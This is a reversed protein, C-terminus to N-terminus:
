GSWSPWGERLTARIRAAAEVLNRLAPEVEEYTRTKLGCDPNVWLQGPDLADLAQGLLAAMDDTAPVRPSHIDYVGPGIGAAYGNRELDHALEMRSRAAEVSTVDADLEAIWPLIEGFESYCMHTHVQTTDAVGATALRFSEVAWALYGTWRERRLPLGERLAPEDVQIVGLGARELDAVEDRLALAVQRATEAEPQDDRVFSWKLMTVPGTLMAKMPRDTLSQAYASWAVTMPAPRAVDGYMIPPRVYRSGYSQVWGHGTFAFGDLQEGFYQVMDNREPEGHVLVDLGLAEQLRVVREIEARMRAEYGARDLRGARHDARAARLEPTQPFSGITTTPLLPLGLREAQLKAREAYPTARRADAETLAAVRERVAPDVTRPSTRRAQVAAVNAALEAEVAGTGERLARTLLVVEDVKQRAFALWGRVEPDLGTEAALDVPVHLLSSSTSVTVEGALGLLPALRELAARLDTAWVNRGDVVGAVLRRGPLGGLAALQALNREGGRTFDLAVGDVPARALVPLAEAAHDFYTAVLLRPREVGAALGGLREYAGALAALEAESRETVFAPEDLQAWEAGAQRLRGLLEAYVDLLGDLLSLRDFGADVGEAAKGLLLFTVPGLLVPRTVIGLELAEAFEDMPKSGSLSFATDPGLEPVLHHYNTDFWKTMELATAGDSGRAMAFYTDLSVPGGPHGFRAPVAGVMAITDLVHDYLSFHNSPVEDIGADRLDLWTSRRLGAAAAHLEAASSRGAWYAETARKLERDPGIRPYGLVTSTRTTTM